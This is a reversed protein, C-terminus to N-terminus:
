TRNLLLPLQRRASTVLARSVPPVCVRGALHLVPM